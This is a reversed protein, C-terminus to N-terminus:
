PNGSQCQARAPLEFDCQGRAARMPGVLQKIALHSPHAQYADLDARSAFEMYLALDWADPAEVFNAGAAMRLLGPIGNRSAEFAQVIQQAQREREAGTPGNLRWMVIHAIAPSIDSM